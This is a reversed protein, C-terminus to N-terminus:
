IPYCFYSIKSKKSLWSLVNFNTNLSVRYRMGSKKIVGFFEKWSNINKTLYEKWQDKVLNIDPYFKKNKLIILEYGRRGIELSANIPDSFSYIMNGIFSSYAAPTKFVKGGLNNVRKELNNIFDKRIWQNNVMKNFLKGKNHEKSKIKLDEMFVFKCNWKKFLKEISKSIEFIEHKIKDHNNEKINLVYHRVELIKDEEKISIGIENPNLDIGIYRNNLLNHTQKKEEFTIYIKNSDIKVSYTLGQEGQKINNIQELNYLLKRYNNRLNPLKLNIHQDRSIKFIIENNNIIDLKFSRNGMKTAEGQIMIPLLRKDKLEQNSINNKIRRYFSPKSGFIVKGDINKNYIAEGDKIGCQVLWSNLLDINNLGSMLLRIEKQSKGDKFRNYSFRVVNSYQKRLTELLTINEADTYYPLPITIM